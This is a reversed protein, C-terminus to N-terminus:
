YFVKVLYLGGPCATKGRRRKDREGLVEDVRASSVRVRELELFTGIIMRVMKRLFSNAIIDFILFDDKQIFECHFVERVCSKGPEVSSLSRFDHIGVIRKCYENLLSLDPKRGIWLSYNRFFPSAWSATDIIYRYWRKEASYRPHFSMEVEYVGRIRIDKPLMSNLARKLEEETMRTEARFSAVQGLAHVGTDTRGAANLGVHGKLITGLAKEMVGQVTRENRQIQWGSFHTGDYALELAIHRM